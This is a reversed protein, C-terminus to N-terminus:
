NKVILKTTMKIVESVVKIHPAQGVASSFYEAPKLEAVLMNIDNMTLREYGAIAEDISIPNGLLIMNRANRIMRSMPDETGIVFMAKCFNVGRELEETTLGYQQLKIVEELGAISVREFNNIDTVYYAGMIGVDSYLELFSDILYVLGELERIRHFLRSSSSGGLIYDLVNLGYRRQDKYPHTFQGSCVHVQTLDPRNQVISTREIKTPPTQLQSPKPIFLLYDSAILRDVLKNHDIKGAASICVESRLFNNHYYDVIKERTMSRVSEYNGLTLFSLPHEKFMAEYLLLFVQEQPDELSANIENEIINKEKELENIDFESQSILEGVLDMMLDFSDAFYRCYIGSTERSTFGDLVAGASETLSAIDKASKNKTGKFLMHQIMHTIGQNEKTEYRSGHSLFVGLAASALHPINDTVVSFNPNIKTIQINSM